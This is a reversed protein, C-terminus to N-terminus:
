LVRREESRDSSGNEALILEFDFVEHFHVLDEKLRKVATQLIKEENYVPIVISVLKKEM